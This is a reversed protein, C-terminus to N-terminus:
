HNSIAFFTIKANLGTFEQPYRLSRIATSVCRTLAAERTLNEIQLQTGHGQGDIRWQVTIKGELQPNRHQSQEICHKIKAKLFKNHFRNLSRQKDPPALDQVTYNTTLQPQPQTTAVKSKHAKPTTQKRKRRARAPSKPAKPELSAPTAKAAGYLRPPPAPTRPPTTKAKGAIAARTEPPQVPRDPLQMIFFIFVATIGISLEAIFNRRFWPRSQQRQKQRKQQHLHAVRHHIQDMLARPPAQRRREQFHEQLAEELGHDDYPLNNKRDLPVAKM